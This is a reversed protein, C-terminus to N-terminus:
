LAPQLITKKSSFHPSISIEQPYKRCYAMHDTDMMHTGNEERKIVIETHTNGKDNCVETYSTRMRQREVMAVPGEM